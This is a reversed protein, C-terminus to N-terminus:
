FLSYQRDDVDEHCINLIHRSSLNYRRALISISTSHREKRIQIDRVRILLKDAKPMWVRGEADMHPQLTERMRMLEDTELGLAHTSYIPINVNIGGHESLWDKARGFGLARVVARLVPPLTTLVDDDIIPWEM